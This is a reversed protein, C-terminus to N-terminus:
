PTTLLVGETDGIQEVLKELSDSTGRFRGNQVAVWQGSYEAGHAKLWQRNARRQQGNFASNTSIVRAPALVRAYERVRVDRNWYKQGKEAINRATLHAGAKLALRIMRVFDEATQDQWRVEELAQLFAGEDAMGAANSLLLATRENEDPEPPLTNEYVQWSVGCEALVRLLEPFDRDVRWQDSDTTDRGRHCRRSGASPDTIQDNWEGIVLQEIM